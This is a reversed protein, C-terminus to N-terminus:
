KLNKNQRQRMNFMDVTLVAFYIPSKQVLLGLAAFIKTWAEGIRENGKQQALVIPGAIRVGGIPL